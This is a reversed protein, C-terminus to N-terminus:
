EAEARRALCYLYAGKHGRMRIYPYAAAAIPLCAAAKARGLMRMVQQLPRPKAELAHRAEQAEMQMVDRFSEPAGGGVRRVLGTRLKMNIMQATYALGAPEEQMCVIEFGQARLFNKLAAPSWRLFHNPPFDFVDPGTLWRERNPVSM